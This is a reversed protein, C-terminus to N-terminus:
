GKGETQFEEWKRTADNETRGNNEKFATSMYVYMCKYIYIYILILILILISSYHVGDKEDKRDARKDTCFCDRPLLFVLFMDSLKSVVAREEAAPAAVPGLSEVKGLVAVVVVVVVPAAAGM